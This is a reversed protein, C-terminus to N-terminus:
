TIVLKFMLRKNTLDNKEGIERIYVIFLNIKKVRQM